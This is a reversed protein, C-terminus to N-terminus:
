CGRSNFPSTWGGIPFKWQPDSTGFKNKALYKAQGIGNRFMAAYRGATMTDTYPKKPHQLIKSLAGYLVYDFFHSKFYDPLDIDCDVPALAARVYVADTKTTSFAPQFVVLNPQSMYYGSVSNTTNDVADRHNVSHGWVDDVELELVQVVQASLAEAYTGGTATGDENLNLTEGAVATYPGLEEQWAFSQTCFTRLANALELEILETTAGPTQAMISSFWIDRANPM